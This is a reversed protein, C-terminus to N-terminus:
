PWCDDSAADGAVTVYIDLGAESESCEKLPEAFYILTILHKYTGDRIDAPGFRIEVM